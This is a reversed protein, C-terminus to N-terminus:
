VEVFFLTVLINEFAVNKKDDLGSHGSKDSIWHWGTMHLAQHDQLLVPLMLLLLAIMSMLNAHLHGPSSPLPLSVM